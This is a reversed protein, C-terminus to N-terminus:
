LIFKNGADTTLDVVYTTLDGRSLPMVFFRPSPPFENTKGEPLHATLAWSPYGQQSHESRRPKSRRPCRAHKCTPSVQTSAYESGDDGSVLHMPMDPPTSRGTGCELMPQTRGGNHESFSSCFFCEHRRTPPFFRQNGRRTSACLSLAWSPYGQQSHESRRPMSRGPCRAHKCTPSVQTSAYESGDDGSVLHMPMDPPTSGGSGCALM